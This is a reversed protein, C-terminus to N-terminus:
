GVAMSWRSTEGTEFGDPPACWVHLRRSFRVASCRNAFADDVELRDLDGGLPGDEIHRDLGFLDGVSGPVAVHSRDVIGLEILTLPCAGGAAHLENVLDRCDVVFHDIFFGGFLASGPM